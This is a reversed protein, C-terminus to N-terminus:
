WLSPYSPDVSVPHLPQSSQEQVGAQLTQQLSLLMPTDQKALTQLVSGVVASTEMGGFTNSGNSIKRMLVMPRLEREALNNTADPTSLVARILGEYQVRLRAQIDIQRRCRTTKQGHISIPSKKHTHYMTTITGEVM